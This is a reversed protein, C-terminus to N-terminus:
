IGPRIFTYGPIGPGHQDEGAIPCDNERAWRLVDSHGSSAADEPRAFHLYSEAAQYTRADWPCGNQRAWQLIGAGRPPRARTQTGDIQSLTYVLLM